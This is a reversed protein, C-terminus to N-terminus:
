CCAFFKISSKLRSGSKLMQEGRTDYDRVDYGLEKMVPRLRRKRDRHECKAVHDNQPTFKVTQAWQGFQDLESKVNEGDLNVAQLHTGSIVSMAAGWTGTYAPAPLAQDWPGPLNACIGIV